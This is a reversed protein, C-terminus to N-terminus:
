HHPRHHRHHPRRHHPASQRRFHDNCAPLFSGSIFTHIPRSLVTPKLFSLTAADSIAIPITSTPSPLSALTLGGEIVTIPGAIQNNPNSLLLTGTGFKTLGKSATVQGAIEATFTTFIGGDANIYAEAAGFDLHPQILLSDGATATAILGGSLIHLTPTTSAGITETLSGSLRLAYISTDQALTTGPNPVSAFGRLNLLTNLM